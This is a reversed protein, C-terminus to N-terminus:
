LLELASEFCKLRFIHDWHTYELQQLHFQNIRSFVQLIACAAAHVEFQSPWNDVEAKTKKLTGNGWWWWWKRHEMNSDAIISTNERWVSYDGVSLGLAGTYM